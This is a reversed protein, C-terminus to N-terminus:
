TSRQSDLKQEEAEQNKTRPDGHNNERAQVSETSNADHRSEKETTQQRVQLRVRLRVRLGVRLRLHLCVCLFVCSHRKQLRCLPRMGYM